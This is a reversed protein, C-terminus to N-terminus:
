GRDKNGKFVVVKARKGKAVKSVRKTKMTKAKMAIKMAKMSKMASKMVSKMSKMPLAMTFAFAVSTFCSQRFRTAQALLLEIRM